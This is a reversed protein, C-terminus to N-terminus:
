GQLLSLAEPSYYKTIAEDKLGIGRLAFWTSTRVIEDRSLGHDAVPPEAIMQIMTMVAM